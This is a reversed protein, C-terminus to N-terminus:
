YSLFFSFIVFIDKPFNRYEDFCVREWTLEEAARDWEFHNLNNEAAIAPVNHNDLNQIQMENHAVLENDPANENDADYNQRVREQIVVNEELIADDVLVDAEGINAAGADLWAPGGGTMIQERLWVLGIFACLSCLVIFAGQLVDQLLNETSLMDLPLTLLSSVSGTFLCRYIRCATLPVVCIWSCVVLVIHLWFKIAKLTNKCLGKLIESFPLRKPM